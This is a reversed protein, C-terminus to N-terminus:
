AAEAIKHRFAAMDANDTAWGWIIKRRGKRGSRADTGSNSRGIEVWGDFRYVDGRHLVADQYSIVWKYGHAACIAPFVFERWLRLMARCLNPRVACLRGLEFAQARDLPGATTTIHPTILQAAAVVAVLGGNNYLGHLWEGKFEPRLWPGMKHGWANLADNLTDRDIQALHAIPAILM